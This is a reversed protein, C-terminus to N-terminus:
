QNLNFGINTKGLALAIRLCDDVTGHIHTSPNEVFNAFPTDRRSLFL